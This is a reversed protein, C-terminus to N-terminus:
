QHKVVLYVVATLVLTLVLGIGGYILLRIPTFQSDFSEKTLFTDNGKTVMVKIEGLDAHMDLISKCILPIRSADIYRTPSSGLADNVIKTLMFMLQEKNNEHSTIVLSEATKTANDVIQDAAKVADTILGAAKVQAALTGDESM